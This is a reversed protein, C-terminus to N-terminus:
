EFVLEDETSIKLAKKKPVSQGTTTSTLDSILPNELMTQWRPDETLATHIEDVDLGFKEAIVEVVTIHIDAVHKFLMLLSARHLDSSTKVPVPTFDSGDALSVPEQVLTIKKATQGTLAKKALAKIESSNM